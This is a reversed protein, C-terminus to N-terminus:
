RAELAAIIVLFLILVAFMLSLTQRITLFQIGDFFRALIGRLRALPAFVYM